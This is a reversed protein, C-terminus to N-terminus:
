GDFVDKTVPFVRGSSCRFFLLLFRKVKASFFTSLPAFIGGVRQTTVDMESAKVIMVTASKEEQATHRFRLIDSSHRISRLVSPGLHQHGILDCIRRFGFDLLM